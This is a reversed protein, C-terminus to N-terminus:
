QNDDTAAIVNLQLTQQDGEALDISQPREGLPRLFDPDTYSSNADDFDSLAVVSFRGPAIGKIEFRGYQDTTATEFRQERNPTGMDPVLIVTAGQAPKQDDQTVTGSVEATNASYVLEISPPASDSGIQLGNALLDAGDKTTAAKLYCTHCNSWMQITYEGDMLGKVTFSGDSQVPTPTTGGGVGINGEKPSLFVMVGMASPASNGEMTVHGVLDVGPRLTLTIANVNSDTVAIQQSASERPEGTGGMVRAASVVYNGPQVHAFDFSNDKPNLLTTRMGGLAPDNELDSGAPSLMIQVAFQLENAGVGIIKGSVDYGHNTNSVLTFDIGPVEDGAALSVATAHDATGSNPYFVPAYQPANDDGFVIYGDRQDTALIYYDGPQLGYIRYDGRDDTRADMNADFTSKGRIFTRRLAQVQVGPIPDGDEDVVRGTVVGSRQLRFAIDTIKQGAVLSLATGPRNFKQQGYEQHLYGNREASLHYRGPAIQDISFHGAEDTIALIPKSAGRNDEGERSLTVRVKKLPDGTAASVVTGAIFAVQSSQNTTSVTADSPTSDQATPAAAQTSVTTQGQQGSADDQASIEIREQNTATYQRAYLPERLAAAACLCVTLPAFFFVPMRTPNRMTM